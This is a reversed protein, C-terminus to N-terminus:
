GRNVPPPMNYAGSALAASWKIEGAPSVALLGNWTDVLYITGDTGVSLGDSAGETGLPGLYWNFSGDSNLAMLRPSEWQSLYVEGSSSVAEAYAYHFLGSNPLGNFVWESGGDGSLATLEDNGPNAGVYCTTGVM